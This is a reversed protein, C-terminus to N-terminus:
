GPLRRATVLYSRPIGPIGRPATPYPWRGYNAEPEGPVVVRAAWGYGALVQEPDETGFQWPCGFQKLKDLFAKLYPSSLLERGVLDAGLWSGPGALGQLATLLGAVAGASLYVLLGEALFAAPQERAFGAQLLSSVWDEELDARVVERACMPRAG